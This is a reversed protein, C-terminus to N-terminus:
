ALLFLNNTYSLYGDYRIVNIMYNKGLELVMKNPAIMGHIHIFKM